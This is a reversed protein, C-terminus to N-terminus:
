QRDGNKGAQAEAFNDLALPWAVRFVEFHHEPQAHELITSVIDNLNRDVDGKIRQDHLLNFVARAEDQERDREDLAAEEEPGPQWTYSIASPLEGRKRNIAVLAPWYGSWRRDFHPPLPGIDYHRALDCFLQFISHSIVPPAAKDRYLACIAAAAKRDAGTIQVKASNLAARISARLKNSGKRGQPTNKAM